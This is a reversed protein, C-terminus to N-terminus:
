MCASLIQIRHWRLLSLVFLVLCTQYLYAFTLSAEVLEVGKDTNRSVLDGMNLIDSKYFTIRHHRFTLDYRLTHGTRIHIFDMGMGIFAWNFDM